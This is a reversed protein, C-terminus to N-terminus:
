KTCLTGASFDDMVANVPAPEARLHQNTRCQVTRRFLGRFSSSTTQVGFYTQVAGWFNSM